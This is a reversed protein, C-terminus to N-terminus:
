VAVFRVQAGPEFLAPPSRDPDFLVRDTVGLLHWGGPSTRPYVATYEAAIAVSGTPVRTRPTPRRALQLRQDLGRMYAFGPAFGCFGVSYVSGSHIAVVQDISLNTAEAVAALDAGDYRVPVEIVAGGSRHGTSAPRVEDLRDRVLSLAAEDACTVLVTRAGPVIDIVGDVALQRVGAAWAAPDDGIEDVLVARVGMPLLRM